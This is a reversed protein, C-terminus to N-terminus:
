SKCIHWMLVVFLAYNTGVSAYADYGRYPTGAAPYGGFGAGQYGAQTPQQHHVLGHAQVVLYVFLLQVMASM